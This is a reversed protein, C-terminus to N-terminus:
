FKEITNIQKWESENYFLNELTIDDPFLITGTEM